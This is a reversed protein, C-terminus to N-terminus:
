AIVGDIIETLVAQEAEPGGPPQDHDVYRWIDVRSAAIFAALTAAESHPCTYLSRFPQGGTAALGFSVSERETDVHFGLKRGPARHLAIVPDKDLCDVIGLIMDEIAVHGCLVRDHELDRAWEDIEAKRLQRDHRWHEALEIRTAPAIRELHHSLGYWSDYLDRAAHRGMLANFKGQYLYEARYTLIGDSVHVRAERYAPDDLEPVEKTNIFSEFVETAKRLKGRWTFTVPKTRAKPDHVDAAYVGPIQRLVQRIMRAQDDKRWVKNTDCDYDASPRHM